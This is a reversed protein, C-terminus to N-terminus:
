LLSVQFDIEENNIFKINSYDNKECEYVLQSPHRKVCIVINLTKCERNLEDLQKEGDLLPLEFYGKIKSEPFKGGKTKRFTPM